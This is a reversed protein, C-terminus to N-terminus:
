GQGGPAVAPAGHLRRHPDRGMRMLLGDVKVPHGAFHGQAREMEQPHERAHQADRRVLVQHTKSAPGPVLAGATGLRLAFPNCIARSHESNRQQQRWRFYLRGASTAAPTTCVKGPCTVDITLFRCSLGDAMEHRCIRLQPTGMVLVATLSPLGGIKEAPGEQGKSLGQALGAM